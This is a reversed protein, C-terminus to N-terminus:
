CVQGTPEVTLLAATVNVLKEEPVVLLDAGLRRFGATKSREIGLLLTLVAFVAGKGLSVTLAPLTTRTSRRSLDQLALRLYLRRTTRPM